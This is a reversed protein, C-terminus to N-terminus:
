STWKLTFRWSKTCYRQGDHGPSVVLQLWWSESAAHLHMTSMFSYLFTQRKGISSIDVQLAANLQKQQELHQQSSALAAAIHSQHGGLSAPLALPTVESKDNSGAHGHKHAFLM